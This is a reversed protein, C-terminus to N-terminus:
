TNPIEADADLGVSLDVSKNKQLDDGCDCTVIILWWCIPSDSGPKKDRSMTERIIPKMGVLGSNTSILNTAMHFSLGLRLNLDGISKDGVILWSSAM